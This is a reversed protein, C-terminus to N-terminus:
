KEDGSPQDQPKDEKNNRLSLGLRHNEPEVSVVRFKIQDGIKAIKSMDTVPQDSLESIHALGHIDPDLEVFLGFPNVKLVTGMVEQGVKYKESVKVWPDEILRRTSLSIKGDETIGIIKAKVKDGVNIVNKPHDIRQWALESIHILGEQSKDFTVFAGFDVIGSIKGEVVDGVKYNLLISEGTPTSINKESVIFKENEEDVNIIRVSFEQGIYTKLKELIRIKNGGDVRPYHESNLHSVPLFGAVKGFRILLGGKNAELTKVKIPEGKEMLEILQDWAKKHSAYRFSLEMLGRENELDIVTASTTDGVKLNSFEGSEDFLEPGRIIGTTIGDIDLYIENRGIELIQGEVLDGMKPLLKASQLYEKKILKTTDSIM